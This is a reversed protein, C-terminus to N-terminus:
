RRLIKSKAHQNIRADIDLQPMENSSDGSIQKAPKPALTVTKARKMREELRGIETAQTVVDQIKSIRELEKPNHKCAAYIFAAPDNMSRTALMMADTIPKERVISEFDSYKGMGDTFKVEFEAMSQAESAQYQETQHKKARTDMHKDIFDGLQAEWQEENAPAPAPEQAPAPEEQAHRGRKLRDRMMQQVEEETYLKKKSVKTGYEDIEPSESAEKEQAQETSEPQIETKKDEAELSKEEEALKEEEPAQTKLTDISNGLKESEDKMILADANSMNSIIEETM